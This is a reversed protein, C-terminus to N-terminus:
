LLLAQRRDPVAAQLEALKAVGQGDGLLAAERARGRPEVDRLRRDALLYAQELVLDAKRQKAAGRAADLEGLAAAGEEVLGLADDAVHEAEGVGRPPQAARRRVREGEAHARPHRLDEHRPQKAIERVTRSSIRVAGVRLM